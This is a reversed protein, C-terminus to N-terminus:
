GRRHDYDPIGDGFERGGFRYGVDLMAGCRWQALVSRDAATPRPQELAPKPMVARSLWRLDMWAQFAVLEEIRIKLPIQSAEKVRQKAADSLASVEKAITTALQNSEPPGIKLDDRLRTSWQQMQKDLDNM